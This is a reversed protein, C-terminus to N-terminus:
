GRPGTQGPSYYRYGSEASRAAPQLLRLRDYRRLQPVTLGVLEAFEGIQMHDDGM